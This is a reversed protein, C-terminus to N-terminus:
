DPIDDSPCPTNYLKFDVLKGPPVGPSEPDFAPDQDCVKGVASDASSQVDYMFFAQGLLNLSDLKAMAEYYNLGVLNPVIVNSETAVGITVVVKDGRAITDGPKIRKGKHTISIVAGILSNNPVEKVTYDIGKNKLKIFAVAAFDGEAINITEQPPLKRFVTVFVQRGEKVKADPKPDQSVIIGGKGNRDYISDVVLVELLREELMVAAEDLSKGTLDPVAVQQGHDTYWALFLWAGIAIVIYVAFIKILIKRGETGFIYKIFGM